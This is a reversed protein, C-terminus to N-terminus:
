LTDVYARYAAADKLAATESPDALRIKWIWGDGYPDANVIEPSAALAENAEVVEGSVPAFLDSVAKVSEIVGCAQRATVAAGVAPTEVFVIDGLHEAAYATIGIVGTDGEVRLWEHDDTYFLGDRVDVQREGRSHAPTQGARANVRPRSREVIDRETEYTMLRAAESWSVWRVELFERDHSDLDGGTAEMLFYHVTKHIRTGSQFFRYEIAGVPEVIRVDLGTEERVERLATDEIAEGPLPTGKPLTWTVGDRPRYRRGLVIEPEGRGAPGADPLRVVIGGASM